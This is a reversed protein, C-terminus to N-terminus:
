MGTAICERNSYRERIKVFKSVVDRYCAGEIRTDIGIDCGKVPGKGTYYLRNVSQMGTIICEKYLYRDLM